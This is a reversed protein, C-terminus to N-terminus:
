ENYKNLKLGCMKIYEFVWIDNGIVINSRNFVYILRIYDHM